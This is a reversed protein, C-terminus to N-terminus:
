LSVSFPDDRINGWLYKRKIFFLLFLFSSCYIFLRKVAILPSLNQNVISKLFVPNIIRHLDVYVDRLVQAFFLTIPLWLDCHGCDICRGFRWLERVQTDLLSIPQYYLFVFSGQAHIGMHLRSFCTQRLSLVFILSLLMCQLSKEAKCLINNVCSQLFFTNM